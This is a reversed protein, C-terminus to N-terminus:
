SAAGGAALMDSYSYEILESPTIRFLRLYKEVQLRLHDEGFLGKEDIAEIEIFQGLGDVQDIHFKVNEIYYIERTKRVVIQVDLFRTLVERLAPDYPPKYITVLSRKPGTADERDYHILYNEINGERIKLRGRPCRFYTDVGHGNRRAGRRPRGRRGEGRIFKQRVPEAAAGVKISM